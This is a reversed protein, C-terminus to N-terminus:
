VEVGGAEKRWGGPWGRGGAAIFAELAAVPIRVQRGLHVAPLLGARILGYVASRSLRLGDAVEGVTFMRWETASM